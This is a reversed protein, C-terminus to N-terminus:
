GPLRSLDAVALFLRSLSELLALRNNQVEPKPDMVLVKDFFADVTPRLTALRKLAEDYRRAALAAEVDARLAAIDAHLRREQELTLLGEDVSRVAGAGSKRLINAIRKNAAALSAADPLQLFEILSM